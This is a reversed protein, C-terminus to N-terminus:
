EGPHEKAGNLDYPSATARNRSPAGCTEKGGFGQVKVLPRLKPKVRTMVADTHKCSGDRRYHRKRGFCALHYWRQGKCRILLILGKEDTVAIV